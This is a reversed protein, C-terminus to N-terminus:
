RRRIACVEAEAPHVPVGGEEADCKPPLSGKKSRDGRKWVDFTTRPGRQQRENDEAAADREQLQQSQGDEQVSGRVVTEFVALFDSQRAHGNPVCSLM